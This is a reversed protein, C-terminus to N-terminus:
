SKKLKKLSEAVKEISQVKDWHEGLIPLLWLAKDQNILRQYWDLCKAYENGDYTNCNNCSCTSWSFNGLLVV